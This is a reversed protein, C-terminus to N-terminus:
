EQGSDAILPGHGGADLHYQDANGGHDDGARGPLAITIAIPKRNKLLM